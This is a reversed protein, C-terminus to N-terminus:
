LWVPHTRRGQVSTWVVLPCVAADKLWVSVDTGREAAFPMFFSFIVNFNCLQSAYLLFLFFMLLHAVRTLILSHTYTCSCLIHADQTSFSLIFDWLPPSVTNLYGRHLSYSPSLLVTHDYWFPNVTNTCRHIHGPPSQSRTKFHARLSPTRSTRSRWSWSNSAFTERTSCSGWGGSKRRSSTFNWAFSHVFCLCLINTYIM